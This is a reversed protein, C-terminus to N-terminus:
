ERAASGRATTESTTLPFAASAAALQEASAGWGELIGLAEDRGLSRGCLVKGYAEAVGHHGEEAALSLATRGDSHRGELVGLAQEDSAGLDGLVEGYTEIVASQGYKGASALAPCGFANRAELMRLAEEVTVDSEKLFRGYTKIVGCHGQQAAVFLASIGGLANGEAKGELLRLARRGTIGRENLVERYTKVFAEHGFQAAMIVARAGEGNRGELVRVARDGTIDLKRLDADYARIIESNGHQAASFLPSGFRSGTAELLRAAPEGTVGLQHLVEGRAVIVQTLGVQAALHLGDHGRGELIALRDSGDIGDVAFAAGLARMADPMNRELAAGFATPYAATGLYRLELKGPPLEEPPKLVIGDINEAVVCIGDAGTGRAFYEPWKVCFQDFSLAQFQQSGGAAATQVSMEANTLNPDYFVAEVRAPNAEAKHRIKLAMVHDETTLVVGTEGLGRKLMRDAMDALWMGFGRNGVLERTPADPVSVLRNFSVQYPGLGGHKVFYEPIRRAAVIDVFHPEKLFALALHRCVIRTPESVFPGEEGFGRPVHFRCNDDIRKGAPTYTLNPKLLAAAAIRAPLAGDRPLTRVAERPKTADTFKERGEAVERRSM